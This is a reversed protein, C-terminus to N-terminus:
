RFILYCRRKLKKEGGKTGREEDGGGELRFNLPVISIIVSSCKGVMKREEKGQARGGGHGPFFINSFGM